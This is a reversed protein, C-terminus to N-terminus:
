IPQLTDQAFYYINEHKYGANESEPKVHPEFTFLCLEGLTATNGEEIYRRDKMDTEISHGLNGKFDLNKFGEAEIIRNMHLWLDHASMDPTCIALLTKHLKEEFKAGIEQQLTQPLLSANGDKIYITRAYDGWASNLVPSLDVTVIDTNQVAANSPVYERGSVSLLTRDGVLVLAALDYYWFSDIGKEVFLEKAKDAIEQETTGPHIFTLLEFMVDKAINQIKTFRKIREYNPIDILIHENEMRDSYLKGNMHDIEHQIIRAAWGRFTKRVKNKQEDYYSVTIESHRPVLGRKNFFCLCGEYKYDTETSASEIEPNIMIFPKDDPLWVICARKLVGIQVLSLGASSTFNHAHFVNDFSSRLQNVAEQIEQGNDFDLEESRQRLVPDNHPRIDENM